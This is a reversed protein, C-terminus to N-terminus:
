KKQSFLWEMFGPYNFAPNWSGHNVGPFEIYEVDAGFKKLASYAARSNEVPVVNDEDGHFIRFKVNKASRLREPNVGGCIPIAAAFLGPYRCVMDFAGMGGMSLGIVYVRDSDIKENAIFHETLERVTELIGSSPYNAPFAAPEFGNDPRKDFAWYLEAPCQPFLVVAPFNEMNVPNTFMKSGHTLQKFNDDGREGAGHLFLVLPFDGGTEYNAPFLVRYNLQLGSNGPYVEARYQGPEEASLNSWAMLGLLLCITRKMTNLNNKFTRYIHAANPFVLRLEQINHKM